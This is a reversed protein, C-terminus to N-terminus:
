NICAYFLGQTIVFSLNGEGTKITINEFCWATTLQRKAKGEMLNQDIVM